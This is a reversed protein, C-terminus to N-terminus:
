YQLMGKQVYQNSVLENRKVWIPAKPSKTEVDGDRLALQIVWRCQAGSVIARRSRPGVVGHADVTILGHKSPEQFDVLYRRGIGDFGQCQAFYLNNYTILSHPYTKFTLSHM